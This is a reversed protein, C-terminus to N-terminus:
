HDHLIIRGTDGYVEGLADSDLFAHADGSYQVSRDICLIEDAHATVTEIDHEVLVITMGQDNLTGLLDYFASLSDADVGVTPEDLVLLDADKALARAIFARQRQGGSLTSIRRDALNAIGVRKLAETVRDHDAQDVRRHGILSFRGMLVAERVSVPMTDGRDTVQQSVYGLRNGDAFQTAPEGFLRITGSDPGMLGLLLHVLTTKGSGNPGILGLFDGDEVTVSVDRLAVTEGYAYSVADAEVVATM